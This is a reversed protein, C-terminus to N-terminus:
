EVAGNDFEFKPAKSKRDNTGLNFVFGAYFVRADRRYVADQVLVPTDIHNKYSRSNFLDSVTAILSIRKKWFDQRFGLNLTWTPQRYGQPTLQKSRYDANLQFLTTKTIYFSANVKANWSFAAKNSSFGIDSADIQNYFGSASFNINAVKEILWSGSLDIGASQDTSLNEMTTILTTDNLSTTVRTFGNVKYRYFLTPVLTLHKEQLSYGFEISHIDEPKLDPNGVRINRPDRYEPVPNMDDVDPRNIRRSYNLQWEHKGSAIGMHITPYLAFYDSNSTTDITRFDLNLLTEEARLGGLVRFKKWEWSITAFLAHVTQNGYFRSGQTTDVIWRMSASDFQEITEDKDNIQVTGEYGLELAADQWLPRSYAVNVDLEDDQNLATNHDKEQPYLPFSYMNTWMDNEREVDRQYELDFKLLHEEEENFVHEYYANLGYSQETEKGDLKRIYEESIVQSSDKYQNWTSDKRNSTRYNYTGSVGAVDKESINWDFGLQALHSKTWSTGIGHQELYTSQSTTTDITQSNLDRTRLRYDQRYGYSGFLNIKGSNYNLQLNTNFRSNSGANAGLIGNLGLKREKKLIINIIGGTGDPKYKASPNTIVEIREILSAPMQELNANGTMVSPRGNILITVGSGRLSINGDIDVTVSPITQLMDAVTGTQAMIDQQVNFVKRDIKNIMMTKEAIITVENMTFASPDLILDGMEISATKRSVTVPGKRNKGYGIFSYELAYSGFPVNDLRFFGNSDTVNGSVLKGSVTDMLLVNAYEVPQQSHADLIRGTVVGPSRSQSMLFHPFAALLLVTLVLQPLKM